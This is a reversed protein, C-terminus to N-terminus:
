ESKKRTTKLANVHRKLFKIVEVKDKYLPSIHEWTKKFFDNFANLFFPEDIYIRTTPYDNKLDFNEYFLAKGEKLVFSFSDHPIYEPKKNIFSINYNAYTKLYYIIYELLEIINNVDLKIKKIGTCYYLYFEQHKILDSISDILYIEDHGYHKINKRFSSYQKKYNAYAFQRTKYSPVYKKLLECYIHEPLMITSFCSKLVNRNGIAEGSEALLSCYEMSEKRDFYRILQRANNKLLVKFYEEFVNVASLSKLYFATNIETNQNIAFSSIAGIKPIVFTERESDFLSHKTYFYITLGEQSLLPLAFRLFRSIRNMNNDLKMLVIIKWGRSVANLFYERIKSVDENSKNFSNNYTMYIFKDDNMVSSVAEDLLELALKEINDSGFVVKDNCSLAVIEQLGKTKLMCVMTDQKMLNNNNEESHKKEKINRKKHQFSWGQAESLAKKINREMNNFNSVDLGQRLLIENINNIQSENHINKFVYEAIKEIYSSGYPPIREEHVWRNVLSNDVHISKALRSMSVNLVLLMNKLCEGFTM